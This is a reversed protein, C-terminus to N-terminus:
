VVTKNDQHVSENLDTISEPSEKETEMPDHM